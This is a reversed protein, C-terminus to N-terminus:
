ARTILEDRNSVNREVDLRTLTDAKDTSISGPLARHQLHHGTKQPGGRARHFHAAVHLSQEFETRTKVGLEGATLVDVCRKRILTDSTAIRPPREVVDEVKGFEVLEDIPGDLGIRSSHIRPEGKRGGRSHPRLHEDDILDETGAVGVERQLRALPHQLQGGISRCNQEDRMVDRRHLHHTVSGDPDITPGHEHVSRRVLHTAGIRCRDATLSLHTKAGLVQVKQATLDFRESPNTVSLGEHPSPFAGSPATLIWRIRAETSPM